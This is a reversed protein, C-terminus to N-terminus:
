SQIQIRRPRASEAIPLTVKLVGDRMVAQIQDASTGQPLPVSRYFSGYSRESHFLGNEDRTSEQRREGHIVVADQEVQVNVDEKRMGPLDTFVHLKGGRECMEVQPMWMQSGDAGRGRMLSRGGGWVQNFRRDMAEDLRRMLEFPGGRGWLSPLSGGRRAMAGGPQGQQGATPSYQEQQSPSGRSGQQQPAIGQQVPQHQQSAGAQPQRPNNSNDM